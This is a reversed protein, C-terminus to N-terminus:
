GSVPPLYASLAEAEKNQEYLVQGLFFDYVPSKDESVRSKLQEVAAVPDKDFSGRLRRLDIYIEYNIPPEVASIVGYSGLFNNVFEPNGWHNESLPLVSSFANPTILILILLVKNM